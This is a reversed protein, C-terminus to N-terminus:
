SRLLLRRRIIIALSGGIAIIAIGLPLLTPKLSGFIIRYGRKEPPEFDIKIIKAKEITLEKLYSLIEDVSTLDASKWGTVIASSKISLM